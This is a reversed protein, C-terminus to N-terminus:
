KRERYIKAPTNANRHQAREREQPMDIDPGQPEYHNRRRYEKLECEDESGLQVRTHCSINEQYYEMYDVERGHQVRHIANNSEVPGPFPQADLSHLDNQCKKAAQM